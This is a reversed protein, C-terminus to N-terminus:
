ISNKKNLTYNKLADYLSPAGIFGFISVWISDFINLQYFTIGFPIGLLFAFFLNYIIIFKTGIFKKIKQIFAMLIISFPISIVITNELSTSIINIM